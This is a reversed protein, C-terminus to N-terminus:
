LVAIKHGLAFGVNGLGMLLFGLFEILIGQLGWPGEDSSSASFSWSPDPSQGEFICM